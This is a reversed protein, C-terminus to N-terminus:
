GALSLPPPASALVEEVGCGLRGSDMSGYYLNQSHQIRWFPNSARFLIVMSFKCFSEFTLVFKPFRGLSECSKVAKTATMAKRVNLGFKERFDSINRVARQVKEDDRNECGRVTTEPFKGAGRGSELKGEVKASYFTRHIENLRCYARNHICYYTNM